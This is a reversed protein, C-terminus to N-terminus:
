LASSLLGLARGAGVLPAPPDEQIKRAVLIGGIVLVAVSLWCSSPKPSGLCM